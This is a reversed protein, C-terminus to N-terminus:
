RARFRACTRDARIEGTMAEWAALVDAPVPDGADPLSSLLRRVKPAAKGLFSVCARADANGGDQLGPPGAVATSFGILSLGMLLGTVGDGNFGRNPSISEQVTRTVVDTERPIESLSAGQGGAVRIKWRARDAVRDVESRLFVDVEALLDRYTKAQRAGPSGAAGTEDVPRGAALAFLDVRGLTFNREDAGAGTPTTLLFAALTIRTAALRM